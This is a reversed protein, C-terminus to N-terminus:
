FGLSSLIDDAEDQGLKEGAVADDSGASEDIQNEQDQMGPSRIMNILTNEVDQVMRMVKRIEQGCLDQFDQAMLVENLTNKLAVGREVNVVLFGSIDDVLARFEDGYVQKRRFQSWRESLAGSEGVMEDLLPMGEEILDMTRHASKDTMAIVQDLRGRADPFERRAVDAIRSDADAAQLAEHLQRTLKGIEQFLSRERISAVNDLATEFGQLDGAQVASSLQEVAPILESSNWKENEEASM